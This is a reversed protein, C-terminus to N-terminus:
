MNGRLHLVWRECSMNYSRLKLTGMVTLMTCRICTQCHCQICLSVNFMVRLHKDEVLLAEGTQKKKKGRTERTGENKKSEREDRRVFEEDVDQTHKNVLAVFENFDIGNDGLITANM